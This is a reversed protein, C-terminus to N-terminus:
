EGGGTGGETGVEGAGKGCRTRGEGQRTAGEYEHGTAEAGGASEEGGREEGQGTRPLLPLRPPSSPLSCPPSSALYLTLRLTLLWLVAIQCGRRVKKDAAEKAAKAKAVLADKEKKELEDAAKQEVLAEKHKLKREEKKEAEAEELRAEEAKVKEGLEKAGASGTKLLEAVETKMRKLTTRQEYPDVQAQAAATPCAILRHAHRAPSRPSWTLMALLHPTSNLLRRHALLARANLELTM